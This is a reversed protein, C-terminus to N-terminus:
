FGVRVGLSAINVDYDGFEVNSSRTERRWALQLTVPRVPQYSINLGAARVRESRPPVTELVLGPDGLYERDFLEIAATLNIKETLMLNPYLAIGEALVFGVNVEETTSIDRQAKATLTFKARPRWEYTVHYTFGEFDREPLQTYSRDTRGARATLRSHGTLTWDLVAALNQQRYSNDVLIGAIPQENPLSGDVVRVSLGLKNDARSVYSVTLDSDDVSADSLQREAASNSQQLRSVEGGIQWRPALKYTAKFFRRDTELFNPTSSQIGSQVNALSALVRSETYGLEGDLPDGVQWLWLAKADRGDKLDLETFQDYRTSNRALNAQLRQRGVPVDLNLGFSTTFYTDSKSSSGLVATPDADDSLRFVNDDSTVTESLFLELRDDWLAVAASTPAFVGAFTLAAGMRRLLCM